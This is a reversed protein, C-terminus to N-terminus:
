GLCADWPCCPICPMDVAILKAPDFQYLNVFPPLFIAAGFTSLVGMSNGPPAAPLAVGQAGFHPIYTNFGGTFILAGGNPDSGNYAGNGVWANPDMKGAGGGGYVRGWGIGYLSSFIDVSQVTAQFFWSGQSVGDPSQTLGYSTPFQVGVDGILAASGFNFQAGPSLKSFGAGNAAVVGPFVGAPVGPAPLGFIPDVLPGFSVSLVADGTGQITPYFTDGAMGTLTATREVTGLITTAYLRVVPDAM